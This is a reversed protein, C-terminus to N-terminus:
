PCACPVKRCRPCGGAYKAAVAKEVDIGHLNALSCLWALVDAFEEEKAERTGRRLASALEGVEEALWM